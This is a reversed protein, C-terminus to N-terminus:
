TDESYEFEVDCINVKDKPQIGLKKLRKEIGFKKFIQQIRKVSDEQSFNTMKVLREIKEGSVVYKGDLKEVLIEPKYFFKEQSFNKILKKPQLNKHKSLLFVIKNLLIEINEKTITSIPIIINKSKLKKKFKQIIEDVVKKDFLDIKNLVIIFPKKYLEKSYHRIERRIILYAKYLDKIEGYGSIDIMHVLIKTREIHRLFETGLGKGLHANEILGPIDAFIIKSDKYNCVGLNPKLTTFPYDAIKPSALTLRSLLSSKGANPLGVIGVDAILKLELELVVKKGPEGFESIRPARNTSTKFSANGRGGRGGCVILIKEDPNKLDALFSKEKTNEDIKFVVTGQPVDIILDEGDKGYMNKSKGHQGDQAKYHPRISFDYLTTMEPNVKLYVDGGKGGCGGDPGGFPVYKERRFSCCGNGGRGSEVYIKIKDIFM